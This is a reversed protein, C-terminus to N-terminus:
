SVRWITWTFMGGFMLVLFGDVVIQSGFRFLVFFTGFFLGLAFLGTFFGCVGTLLTNGQAGACRTQGPSPQDEDPRPPMIPQPLSTVALYM